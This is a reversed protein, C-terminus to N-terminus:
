RIVGPLIEGFQFSFGGLGRCHGKAAVVTNVVFFVFLKSFNERTCFTVRKTRMNM